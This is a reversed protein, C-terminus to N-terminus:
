FRDLVGDLYISERSRTSGTELHTAKVIGAGSDLVQFVEKSQALLSIGATQSVSIALNQLSQGTNLDFGVLQISEISFYDTPQSELCSLVTLSEDIQNLTIPVPCVNSYYRDGTWSGDQTQKLIQFGSKGMLWVSGDSLSGFRFPESVELDSIQNWDTPNLCSSDTTRWYVKGDKDALLMSDAQLIGGKWQLNNEESGSFLDEITISGIDSGIGEIDTGKVEFACKQAPQELETSRDKAAFIGYSGSWPDFVLVSDGGKETLPVLPLNSAPFFDLTFDQYSWEASQLQRFLVLQSRANTAFVAQAQEALRWSVRDEIFQFSRQGDRGTLRAEGPEIILSAELQPFPIVLGKDVSLSLHWDEALTEPDFLSLRNARYSYAMVYEKKDFARKRVLSHRFPDEAFGAYSDLEPVGPILKKSPPTGKSCGMLTLLLLFKLTNFHLPLNKM